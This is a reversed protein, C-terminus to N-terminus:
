EDMYYERPYDIIGGGLGLSGEILEGEQKQGFALNNVVKIIEVDDPIKKRIIIDAM